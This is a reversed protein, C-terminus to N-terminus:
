NVVIRHTHNMSSVFYVGRSLSSTEIVNTGHSLNLQKIVKGDATLIEGVGDIDTRLFLSEGSSLPNPYASFDISLENVGASPSGTLKLVDIDAFAYSFLFTFEGNHVLSANHVPSHDAQDIYIDEVVDFATHILVISSSDYWIWDSFYVM